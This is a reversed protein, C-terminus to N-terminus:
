ASPIGPPPLISFSISPESPQAAPRRRQDPTLWASLDRRLLDQLRLIDDRFEDTLAARTELSLAPPNVWNKKEVAEIGATLRWSLAEPVFPELARKARKTKRLLKQLRASRPLRAALYQESVDPVFTDDVDLIRFIERVIQLPQSKLDDYLYIHVQAPGFRDLYRKVQAYYLGLNKYYWLPHYNQCIRSEEQRLAAAFDALPERGQRRLHLFSSYARDVPNRLIAFMQAKPTYKQIREPVRPCYLYIPTAEGLAKKHQASEFLRCYSDIDTVVHRNFERDGPGNFIGTEGECAFFKPEKPVSMFIRPHQSLYHYLSTTGAKATGLILFNPLTM